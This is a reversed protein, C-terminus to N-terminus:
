LFGNTKIDMQKNIPIIEPLFKIRNGKERQNVSIKKRRERKEYQIFRV